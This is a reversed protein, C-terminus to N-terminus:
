VSGVEKPNKENSNYKEYLTISNAVHNVLKEGHLMTCGKATSLVKRVIERKREISMTHGNMM